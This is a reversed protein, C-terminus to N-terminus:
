GYFVLEQKLGPTRLPNVAIIPVHGFSRSHEKIEPADYASDMLDYLSTVRENTMTALPIAVQSDHLSSSTLICSIPPFLNGQIGLWYTSLTGPLLM